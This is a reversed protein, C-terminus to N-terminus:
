LIQFRYLCEICHFGTHLKVQTRSRGSVLQIGKVPLRLEWLRLTWIQKISIISLYSKLMVISTLYSIRVNPIYLNTVPAATFLFM